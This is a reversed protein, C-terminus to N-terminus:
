RCRAKFLPVTTQSSMSDTERLFECLIARWKERFPSERSSIPGNKAHPLEGRRGVPDSLRVRRNAYGADAQRHEVKIGHLRGILLIESARLFAGSPSDSRHLRRCIGRVGRVEEGLVDM